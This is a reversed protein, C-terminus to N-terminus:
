ASQSNYLQDATYRAKIEHIADKASKYSRNQDTYLNSIKSIQAKTLVGRRGMHEIISYFYESNHESNKLADLFSTVPDFESILHAIDELSYNDNKHEKLAQTLENIAKASQKTGTAQQLIGVTTLLKEFNM